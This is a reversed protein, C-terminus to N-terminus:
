KQHSLKQLPRKPDYFAWDAGTDTASRAAESKLREIPDNANASTHSEPTPPSATVAPLIAYVDRKRSRAKVFSHISSPSIKVGFRSFLNAAIQAYPVRAARQERIFEL